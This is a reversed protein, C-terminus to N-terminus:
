DFEPVTRSSSTPRRRESMVAEMADAFEDDVLPPFLGPHTHISSQAAQKLRHYENIDVIAAVEQGHRTIIQDGDPVLRLVESFRQKAEQVQWSM